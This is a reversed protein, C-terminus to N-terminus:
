PGTPADCCIEVWQLQGGVKTAIYAKGQLGAPPVPPNKPSPVAPRLMYITGEEIDQLVGDVNALALREAETGIIVRVNNQTDAM